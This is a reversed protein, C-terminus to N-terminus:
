NIHCRFKWKGSCITVKYVKDKHKNISYGSTLSRLFASFWNHRDLDIINM